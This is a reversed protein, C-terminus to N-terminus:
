LWQKAITKATNTVAEKNLKREFKSSRPPITNRLALKTEKNQKPPPPRTDKRAIESRPTSNIFNQPYGGEM